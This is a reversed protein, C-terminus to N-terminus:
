PSFTIHNIWWKLFSFVLTELIFFILLMTSSVVVEGKPDNLLYILIRCTRDGRRHTARITGQLQELLLTGLPVLCVSM